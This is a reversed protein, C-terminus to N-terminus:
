AAEAEAIVVDVVAAAVAEDVGDDRPAVDLRDGVPHKTVELGAGIVDAELDHGVPLVKGEVLVAGQRRRKGCESVEEAM